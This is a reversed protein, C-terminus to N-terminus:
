NLKSKNVLYWEQYSNIRSGCYECESKTINISSGCNHCKIINTGATINELPENNKEFTFERKVIKKSITNGKLEVERIRVRITVNIKNNEIIKEKLSIYDIIDYDIIDKNNSKEGYYYEQLEYNVNNYFIKKSINKAKMRDWFEIQKKNIIDKYIKIPFVIITADIMYFLYYLVLSLIATLVVIKSIDYSNFTRSTNAIYTYSLIVSILIDIILTIIRYNSGQLVRDYHYKTGLDKDKYEMNYNTGCYPCGDVIDKEKSTNGCNPCTVENEGNNSKIYTYQIRPDFESIKCLLKKDKYYSKELCIAEKINDNKTNDTNKELIINNSKYKTCINIGLKKLRKLHVQEVIM